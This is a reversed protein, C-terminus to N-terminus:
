NENLKNIKLDRVFEKPLEEIISYEKDIEFWVNEKSESFEFLVCKNTLNVVNVIDIRKEIKILYYSGINLKNKVEQNSKSNTNLSSLLAKKVEYWDKESQYQDHEYNM